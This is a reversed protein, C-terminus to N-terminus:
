ENPKFELLLLVLFYIIVGYMTYTDTNMLNALIAFFMGVMM